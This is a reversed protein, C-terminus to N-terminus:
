EAAPEEAAAEAPEEASEDEITVTANEVLWDVAKTRKISERIGPLRGESRFQEISKDVDEM